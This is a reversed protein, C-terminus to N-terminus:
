HTRHASGQIDVYSESLRHADTPRTSRTDTHTNRGDLLSREIRGVGKKQIAEPHGCSSSSSSARGDGAALLGMLVLPPQRWWALGMDTSRRTPALWLWLLPRGPSSTRPLNLDRCPLLSFCVCPARTCM